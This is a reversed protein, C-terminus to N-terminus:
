VILGGSETRNRGRRKARYLAEDAAALLAAPDGGPRPYTGAVGRSVSLWESATSYGHSLRLGEVGAALREATAVAEEPGCEPLIVVFEEGGYRAVFDGARELASSLARAVKRLGEDGCQHGYGDNYAKFNDVDIMVVSIAHGFRAARRWETDMVREFHRRNAVGTLADTLSMHHLQNVADNLQRNTDELTATLAMLERERAKRTDTEAKLRLASKARAVLEIRNLPKTIYDAAGADFAAQLREMSSEGTVMIIPVDRLAEAAKIRRVAKIGDLDPMQIDMLILDVAAGEPGDLYGLADGASAVAAVAGQDVAKLFVRLQHQVHISDDVILISM